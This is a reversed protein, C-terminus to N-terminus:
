NSQKGIAPAPVNTARLFVAVAATRNVVGLKRYISALHFKVAHASVGLRDGIESNTSGSSVLRLVELERGSLGGITPVVDVHESQLEYGDM